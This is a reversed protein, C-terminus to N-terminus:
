DDKYIRALEGLPGKVDEPKLFRKEAIEDERLPILLFLPRSGADRVINRIHEIDKPEKRDIRMVIVARYPLLDDINGIGWSVVRGPLEVTAHKRELLRHRKKVKAVGVPSVRHIRMRM